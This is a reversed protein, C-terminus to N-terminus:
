SKGPRFATQISDIASDLNCTRVKKRLEAQSSLIDLQKFFGKLYSCKLLQQGWSQKGWHKEIKTVRLEQRKM